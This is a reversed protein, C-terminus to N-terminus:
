EAAERAKESEQWEELIKCVANYHGCLEDAKEQPLNCFNLLYCVNGHIGLSVASEIDSILKDRRESRSMSRWEKKRSKREAM